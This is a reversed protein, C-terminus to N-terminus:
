KVRQMLALKALGTGADELGTGIIYAVLLLVANTLLEDSIPLSPIYSRVVILVAGTILTWFKRSRLFPPLNM